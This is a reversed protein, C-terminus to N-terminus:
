EHKNENYYKCNNTCYCDSCIPKQPKCTIAAFDLMTYIFEKLNNRPQAQESIKKITKDSRLNISIEIGFYRSYIRRFNSDYILNYEQKTLLLFMRAAYIGIGSIMVLEEENDPIENNRLSKSIEILSETRLKGLGLSEIDKMLENNNIQILDEFCTYKQFFNDWILAVADSKTRRLLVETILIKFPNKTKRWPYDRLGRIRVWKKLCTHFLDIKKRDINM